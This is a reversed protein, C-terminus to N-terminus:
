LILRMYYHARLDTELYIIDWTFPSYTAEPSIFSPRFKLQEHNERTMLLLLFLAPSNIVFPSPGFIYHRTICLARPKIGLLCFLAFCFLM